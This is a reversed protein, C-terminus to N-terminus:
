AFCKKVLLILGKTTAFTIKVGYKAVYFFPLVLGLAVVSLGILLFAYTPKGLCFHAIASIIGCIGSAGLSIPIVLLAIAVSWLSAILSVAVAFLSALIPIGIVIFGFVWLIIMWVNKTNSSAVKEKILKSLPIEAIIQNAIDDISGIDAVAESETMGDDIRDNIAESYYEISKNRENQPIRSLKTYLEHLFELKTM